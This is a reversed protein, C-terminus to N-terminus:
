MALSRPTLVSGSRATMAGGGRYPTVRIQLDTNQQVAKAIVQSQVNNIAGPPLTAFGITQAAATGTIAAITFLSLTIQWFARM